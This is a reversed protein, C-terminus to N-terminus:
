TKGKATHEKFLTMTKVFIHEVKPSDVDEGKVELEFQFEDADEAPQMSLKTVYWRIRTRKKGSVSKEIELLLNVFHRWADLLDRIEVRKCILLISLKGDAPESQKIDTTM